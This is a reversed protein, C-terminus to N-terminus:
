KSRWSYRHHSHLKGTGRHCNHFHDGNGEHSCWCTGHLYWLSSTISVSDANNTSAHNAIQQSVDSNGNFGVSAKAKIEVGSLEASTEVSLDTSWGWSNSTSSSKSTDIQTTSVVSSHVTQSLDVSLDLTSFRNDFIHVSGNRSSTVPAGLTVPGM